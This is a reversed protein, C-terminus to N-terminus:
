KKYLNILVYTLSWNSQDIYWCYMNCQLVYVKYLAPNNKLGMASQVFEEITGRCMTQYFWGRIKDSQRSIHVSIEPLFVLMFLHERRGPLPLIRQKSRSWLCILLFLGLIGKIQRDCLWCSFKICCQRMLIAYHDTIYKLLTENEKWIYLPFPYGKINAAWKM